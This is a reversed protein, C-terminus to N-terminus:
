GGDRVVEAERVFRIHVVRRSVGVAALRKAGHPVDGIDPIIDHFVDSM